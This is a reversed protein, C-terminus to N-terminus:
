IEQFSGSFIKGGENLVNVGVNSGSIYGGVYVGDHETVGFKNWSDNLSYSPNNTLDYTVSEYFGGDYGEFFDPAQSSLSVSGTWGISNGDWGNDLKNAAFLTYTASQSPDSASVHTNRQLLVTWWGGDFFPLEIDDSIAVGGESTSGSLYFRLKGYDYYDSFSSGSYTGSPQDEYFLSIGWDFKNDATGNSKKVAISQSYYSGGFSSSPHGITKFRLAIGDPVIYKNDAVRNRQLPM